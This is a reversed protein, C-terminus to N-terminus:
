YTFNRLSMLQYRPPFFFPFVFSFFKIIKKIENGTNAGRTVETRESLVLKFVFKHTCFLFFLNFKVIKENKEKKLWKNTYIPSTQIIYM